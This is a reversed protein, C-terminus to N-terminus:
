IRLFFEKFISEDSGTYTPDCGKINYNLNKLMNFFYAKGCGIEIINLNLLYKELKTIVYNLHDQFVISNSQENDYNEDYILKTSDFLINEFIGTKSNQKIKLYGFDSNKAQNFTDFVRNQLVPVKIKQM